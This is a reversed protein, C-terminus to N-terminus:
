AKGRTPRTSPPLPKTEVVVERTRGRPMHQLVATPASASADQVPQNAAATESARKARAAKRKEVAVAAKARKREGKERETRLIEQRATELDEQKYVSRSVDVPPHPDKTRPKQHQFKKNPHLYGRASLTREGAAMPDAGRTEVLKRKGEMEYDLRGPM